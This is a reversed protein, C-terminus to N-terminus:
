KYYVVGCELEAKQTGDHVGSVYGVIIGLGILLVFGLKDISNKM